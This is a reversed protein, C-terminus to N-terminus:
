LMLTQTAKDLTRESNHEPLAACFAFIKIGGILDHEVNSVTVISMALELVEPSADSMINREIVSYLYILGATPSLM